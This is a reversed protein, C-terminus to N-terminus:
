VLPNAKIYAAKAKEWAQKDSPDQGKARMQAAVLKNEAKTLANRSRKDQKYALRKEANAQAKAQKDVENVTAKGKGKKPTSKVSAPKAKSANVPKRTNELKIVRKDVEDIKAGLANVANLVQEMTVRAM